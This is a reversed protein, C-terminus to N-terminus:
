KRKKKAKGQSKRASKKKASPPVPRRMVDPSILHMELVIEDMEPDHVFPDNLYNVGVVQGSEALLLGLARDAQLQYKKAKMYIVLRQFAEVYSIPQSAVFIAAHGWPSIFTEVATHFQHDARTRNVVDKMDRALAAQTSASLDLLDAGFRLWGPKKGDQLFTVIEEIDPNDNRAPRPAVSDSLGEEYYMWADLDDTLTSIRTRSQNKYRARDRASPPRSAPHRKYLEDPDAEFYLGGRMYWMLVDLEDAAVFSKAAQPETRRRLYLLFSAPTTLIKEVVVLDHLSVIWPLSTGTLLGSRVLADAAIALPGFDDLCAVISHVERVGSLDLWKGSDLWLGRNTLILSELRQAQRTAEGITKKLDDTVRQVNGSRAKDTISGAKVEVCIALDDVIFLADSEAVLTYKQPDVAKSSLDCQLDDGSPALYKLSTFTPGDVLLLSSIRECAFREAFKDRNRGYSDWKKTGKIKSEVIRRVSDVQIGNQLMLCSGDADMILGLGALPNAGNIFRSILAEPPDQSAHASFTSLILKAKSVSVGAREAIRDAGFSSSKGPFFFADSIARRAEDLEEVSLEDNSREQLAMEGIRAFLTEKVERYHERIAVSVKKIDEYSFGLVGELIQQVHAAGLVGDNLMTGISEYHKGRVMLESSRLQGSLDALSDEGQGERISFSMLMVLKAIQRAHGCLAETFENPPPNNHQRDEGSHRPLGMGLAVLAVIDIIAALGEDQSEKYDSLTIPVEHQRVLELVDYSDYNAMLHIMKSVHHSIVSTAQQEIDHWSDAPVLGDMFRGMRALFAHVGDVDDVIISRSAKRKRSGM